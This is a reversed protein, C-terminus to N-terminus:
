FDLEFDLKDREGRLMNYSGLIELELPRNEITALPFEYILVAGTASQQQAVSGEAPICEHPQLMRQNYAFDNDRPLPRPKFENGVSDTVIFKEAPLSKAEEKEENCVEVFLGYLTKGPPPEPGKYFAQDPTIAPNLQRTIFVTYELGDLKEALGERFAEGPTGVGQISEDNEKGCASVGLSLALLALLVPLRRHLAM